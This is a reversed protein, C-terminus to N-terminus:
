WFVDRDYIGSLLYTVETSEDAADDLFVVAHDAAGDMVDDSFWM